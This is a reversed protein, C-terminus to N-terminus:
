ISSKITLINLFEIYKATVFKHNYKRKWTPKKIHNMYDEILNDLPIHLEDEEYPLNVIGQHTHVEHITKIKKGTKYRNFEEM